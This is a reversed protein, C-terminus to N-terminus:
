QSLTEPLKNLYAIAEDGKKWFEKFSKGGDMYVRHRLLAKMSKTANQFIPILQNEPDSVIQSQYDLLNGVANELIYKADDIGYPESDREAAWEAQLKRLFSEFQSKFMDVDSKEYEEPATEAKTDKSIGAMLTSLHKQLMERFDSISSYDFTIGENRVSKKYDSLAKYQELDVSDPMVPASSFYLLTKKGQKRLRDIEEATGSVHGGTATGMRTWFAGILFDCSDVIQNNIIEQPRAGMEPVVHSEWMVPELIIGTHFSHSANWSYIIDPISSREKVCDAPSAILIRYILGNQPM